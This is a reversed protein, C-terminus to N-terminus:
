PVYELPCRMLWDAVVAGAIAEVDADAIADVERHIADALEGTLENLDDLPESAHARRALRHERGDILETIRDFYTPSRDDLRLLLGSGRIFDSLMFDRWGRVQSEDGALRPIASLKRELNAVLPGGSPTDPAPRPDGLDLVTRLGGRLARFEERLFDFDHIAIEFAPDIWSLGWGRVMAAKADAHELLDKDDFSPVLFVYTRVVMSLRLQLAERYKHMKPVDSTLKGKQKRTRDANSVSDDAYCQVVVGRGRVFGELGWDGRNKAPIKQWSADYKRALAERCFDEWETGEFQPKPEDRARM